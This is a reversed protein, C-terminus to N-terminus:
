QRLLPRKSDFTLRPDGVSGKGSPAATVGNSNERGMSVVVTHPNIEARKERENSAVVMQAVVGLLFGLVAGLPPAWHKELKAQPAIDQFVLYLIGGGSFIMVGALLAEHSSLWFYGVLGFVPGILALFLFLLIIRGARYDASAALERYANFGEPLNQLCIMAALLPALVPKSIFVAGLALAEPIFDALMAAAQAAPHRTSVLFVDLALFCVGGLMFCVAVAFVSLHKAGEPVLVLGVASLLVGGGFATVFHRFEEELWLPRIREMSAVAAGVPMAIGALLTWVVIALVDHV